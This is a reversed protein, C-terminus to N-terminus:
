LKLRFTVAHQSPWKAAPQIILAGAEQKWDIKAASGLLTIGSIKDRGLAKIRLPETPM